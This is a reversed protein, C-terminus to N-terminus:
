IRLSCVFIINTNLRTTRKTVGLSQLTVNGDNHKIYNCLVLHRELGNDLKVSLVNQHVSSCVIGLNHALNKARGCFQSFRSSPIETRMSCSLKWLVSKRSNQYKPM